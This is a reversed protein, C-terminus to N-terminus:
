PASELRPCFIVAGAARPIKIAELWAVLPNLTYALVIGLLLPVLFKEAWSLAFVLAMAALIGLAIGRADVSIRITPITAVSAEAALRDQEAGRASDAYLSAAPDTARTM